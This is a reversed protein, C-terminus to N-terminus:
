LINKIELYLECPNEDQYRKLERIIEKLRRPAIGGVANGIHNTKYIAQLNIGSPKKLPIEEWVDALSYYQDTYALVKAMNSTLTLYYAEGTIDNVAIPLFAPHGTADLQGNDYFHTGKAFVFTGRKYSM